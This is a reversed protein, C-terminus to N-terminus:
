KATGTSLFFARVEESLLDTPPPGGARGAAARKGAGKGKAGAAGAGRGAPTPPGKVPSSKPSPGRWPPLASGPAPRAAILALAAQHLTGFLYDCYRCVPAKTRVEVM